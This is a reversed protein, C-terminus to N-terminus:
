LVTTLTYTAKAVAEGLTNQTPTDDWQIYVAVTTYNGLPVTVISAEAVPLYTTLGTLWESQDYTAIQAPTCVAALCPPAGPPVNTLGMSYGGALAIAQNARMKDVIDYAYQVAEQRLYSSTSTKHMVILMAGVGLVGLSFIVLAVLVEILTFGSKYM